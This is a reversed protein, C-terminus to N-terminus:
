MYKTKRLDKRKMALLLNLGLDQDLFECSVRYYADLLAEEPEVMECHVVEAQVSYSREISIDIVEGIQFTQSSRIAIGSISANIVAVKPRVTVVLDTDQLPFRPFKRKEGGGAKQDIEGNEIGVELLTEYEQEIDTEEM